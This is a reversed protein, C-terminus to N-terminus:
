QGVREGGSERALEGGDGSASAHADYSGSGRVNAHATPPLPLPLQTRATLLLGRVSQYGIADLELARACASELAAATHDRVLGLIGQASRIAQEPHRRKAFLADLLAVTLDSSCVDSSWDSIRM